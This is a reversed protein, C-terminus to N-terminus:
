LWAPRTPLPGDADLGQGGSRGTLWAAMAPLPGAVAPAGSGWRRDDAVVM